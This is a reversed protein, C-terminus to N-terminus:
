SEGGAGGKLPILQARSPAIRELLATTKLREAESEQLGEYIRLFHARIVGTPEESRCLDVWGGMASVTKAILPNSFSPTGYSGILRIQDQTESWAGAPSPLSDISVDLAAKRIEAISPFFKNTAIHKIVAAQAQEYALDALLQTYVQMTPTTLAQNPYAAALMTIIKTAQESTM